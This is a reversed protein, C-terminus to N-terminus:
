AADIGEWGVPWERQFFPPRAYFEERKQFTNKFKPMFFYNEQGKGLYGRLRMAYGTMTSFYTGIFRDAGAAIVQEVMGSYNPNVDDMGVAEWYDKLFRLRFKGRVPDFFTSNKEDTMIYVVGGETLLDAVNGFIEEVALRTEKFQFDGRRIHIAVYGKGGAEQALLDTVKLAVCFIEAKYHLFDRVFRKVYNDVRLDGFFYFGYFHTLWRIGNDMQSTFHLVRERQLAEDYDCLRRGRAMEEFRPKDAEVDFGMVFSDANCSFTKTVNRIYKWLPRKRDFVTRNEPPLQGGKLRGTLAERALFDKMQITRVMRRVKGIDFFDAFDHLLGAVRPCARHRPTAM